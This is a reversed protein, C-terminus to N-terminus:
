DHHDIGYKELRRYLAQRSLGLQRAADAISACSALAERIQAEDPEFQPRPRPQSPAPLGLDAAQIQPASALLAARKLTNELERVNGPWDHAELARCADLSLARGALFHRALPLIDEKRERLPPLRLEIVNLRYYLDERFQGRAIAAPLDANTASVLRVKVRKTHTGGLREFEGTQLVRLLKMQGSASLNGIEDLFLTGGDALEFRGPRAKTSGTYAGAEAGFLEAEMLSEPLAGANVRVFPGGRVASNAQIIEAIKEKGAGNPGTILVPVDSRAVQVAMEVLRQMSDAQYILGCLHAREALAQRAASRQAAQQRQLQSLDALELLNTIATLLKHDDWPKGLYDAAGAKVLEVATSLETWATLLIIPLDPHRERIAYFLAKGEDGSTTDASFNMDQVVLAIDGAALRQLGAQPTLASDAALGHLRLQLSIAQCVAPNDDIILIKDMLRVRQPHGSGPRYLGGAM